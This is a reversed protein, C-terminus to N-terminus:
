VLDDREIEALAQEGGRGLRLPEHAGAARMVVVDEFRRADEVRDRGERPLGSGPLRVAPHRNVGRGASRCYRVLTDSPSCCSPTARRPQRPGASTANAAETVISDRRHSPSRWRSSTSYAAIAFPM